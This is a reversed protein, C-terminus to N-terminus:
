MYSVDRRVKSLWLQGRGITKDEGATACDDQLASTGTPDRTAIKPHM